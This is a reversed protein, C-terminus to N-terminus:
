CTGYKNKLKHIYIGLLGKNNYSQEINAQYDM